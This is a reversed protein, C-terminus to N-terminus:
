EFRTKLITSLSVKSIIAPLDYVGHHHFTFEWFEPDSNIFINAKGFNQSRFTDFWIKM